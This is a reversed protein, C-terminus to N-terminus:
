GRPVDERGSNARNLGRVRVSWAFDSRKLDMAEFMRLLAERTSVPRGLERTMQDAIVSLRKYLEDVIDSM